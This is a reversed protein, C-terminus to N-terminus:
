VEITEWRSSRFRWYSVLGRVLQDGSMAIWAGALGLGLWRVLAFALGLRVTWISIGTLWMVFRTDGAGRLAGTSTRAMAMAPQALAIIRLAVIGQEIVAADPTFFTVIPRAFIFFLVGMSGMVLICLRQALNGAARAVKPQGAGLNQGVLTTAAVAFGFGPMFSISEARLAIQHAAYVTTGLSTIVGTFILQAGRLMAREVAAPGGVNLLRKLIGLDPLYNGRWGVCIDSQGSFLVRLMLGAGVARALMTAAGAGAAGLAPFGFNGYILLYNLGINLLNVTVNVKMATRTEGAGRLIGTVVLLLVAFLISLAKFRFYGIGVEIVEPAAGLLRLGWDPFALGLVALPVSLLVALLLSQRAAHAALDLDHAGVLRSILVTTGTRVAEFVVLFLMYIQNSLGVAAIAAPSLRGVMAIDAIGVTSQLLMEVIVPWALLWVAQSLNEKALQALRSKRNPQGQQAAGQATM